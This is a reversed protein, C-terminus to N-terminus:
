TRLPGFRRAALIAAEIPLRALRLGATSIDALAERIVRTYRQADDLLESFRDPPPRESAQPLAGIPAGRTLDEMASRVQGKAAAPGPAQAQQEDDLAGDQRALEELEESMRRAQYMQETKAFKKGYSIKETDGAEKRKDAQDKAVAEKMDGLASRSFQRKGSNENDFDYSRGGM